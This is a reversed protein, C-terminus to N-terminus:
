IIISALCDGTRQQHNTFECNSKQDKDKKKLLKMENTNFEWDPELYDLVDDHCSVLIIKRNMRRITKALAISMIKAVERNVVSTYEDFIIIDNGPTELIASALDVRMKEGTSLVSYPKLWSPVSSFGVSNLTETIKKIEISKSFDDIVSNSRYNKVFPKGFIENAITTKGTGSAGYIVGILWDDSLTIDGNFTENVESIQLDFMNKIANVRFSEELKSKRLINFTSM